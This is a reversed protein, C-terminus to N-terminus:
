FDDKKAKESAPDKVMTYIGGMEYAKYEGRSNRQFTMPRPSSAGSSVIFLKYYAGPEKDAYPKDEARSIKLDYNEPDMAYDNEPTAGVAYSRFVYPAEELTKLLYRNSAKWNKDKCMETIMQAGLEKDVNVYVFVADFWLKAAARPDGAEAAIRAKMDDLGKPLEALAPAALAICFLLVGLRKM